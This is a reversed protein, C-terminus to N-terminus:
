KKVHHIVGKEDAEGWERDYKNVLMKKNMGDQLDIGLIDSIGMLLIGCDSLEEEIKKLGGTMMVKELEGVEELLHNFKAMVDQSKFQKVQWEGIEKQLDFM